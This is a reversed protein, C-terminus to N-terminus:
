LAFEILTDAAFAAFPAPIDSRDANHLRYDRNLAAIQSDIQDTGINEQDTHFIVHVVVPILVVSTRAAFRATRTLMELDRRNQPYIPDTDALLSHHEMAACTRKRQEDAM